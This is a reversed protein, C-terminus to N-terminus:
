SFLLYSCCQQPLTRLGQKTGSSSHIDVTAGAADVSALLSRPWTVVSSFSGQLLKRAHGAADSAKCRYCRAM